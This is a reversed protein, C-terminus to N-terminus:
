ALGDGPGESAARARRTASWEDFLEELKTDMFAFFDRTESVRSRAGGEPMAALAHDLHTILLGVVQNRNLMAQYWDDSAVAYRDVREGPRRRRDILGVQQLYRVGGSVGAPSISLLEALERATMDRDPFVLLASFVRAGTRQMGSQTLVLAIDEITHVLKAHDTM